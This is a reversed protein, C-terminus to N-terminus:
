TLFAFREVHIQRRPVNLTQLSILVAEVMPKPGCVFIDRDRIDPVAAILAQPALPERSIDEGRRGVLYRLEGGRNAVLEDLESKFVVDEWSRARYLLTFSTGGSRAAAPKVRRPPMEEILARLPTIGIGGAILLARPRHRRVTTFLGYPGELVVRTGHRIGGLTTTFDGVRKVTIRLAEGNPAASLSFPHGQWWLDRRLFRFRFFQGARVPLDALSRGTIYVSVVEPSETVVSQVRLRHRLAMRTPIIVRFTLILLVAVAYLSVWYGLAVPDHLFDSGSALQHGFSLAIALYVYFHIFHWSEHSLRRRAARVSVVAILIFLGAAVYAMLMYPYTRLFVGTQGLFSRGDAIAFGATSFVVHACILDVTAFGLWRHWHTIRDIGFLDDLWPSRSMLVVQVLAAYTGLLATIQGAATLVAAWSTLHAIQGHRLWMGIIVVGNGLVILIADSARFGWTRPVRLSRRGAASRGPGPSSGSM